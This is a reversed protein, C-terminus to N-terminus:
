TVNAVPAVVVSLIYYLLYVYPLVRTVGPTEKQITFTTVMCFIRM